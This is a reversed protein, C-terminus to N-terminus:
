KQIIQLLKEFDYPKTMLSYSEPDLNKLRSLQEQSSLATIFIVKSKGIKNKENLFNYLGVGDTGPMLLDIIFIDFAREKVLSLAEQAGSADVVDFNARRLRTKLIFRLDEEDDVILVSSM